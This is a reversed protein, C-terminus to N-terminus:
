EVELLESVSLGLVKAVRYLTLLSPDQRAVELYSVHTRNLGAKEGFAEQSLNMDERLAKIKEGVKRRYAEYEPDTRRQYERESM